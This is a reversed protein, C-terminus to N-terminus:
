VAVLPYQVVVAMFIDSHCQQEPRLFCQFSVVDLSDDGM